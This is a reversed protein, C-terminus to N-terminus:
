LNPYASEKAAAKANRVFAVRTVASGSNALSPLCNFTRARGRWAAYTEHLFFLNRPGVIAEDPVKKKHKNIRGSELAEQDGVWAAFLAALIPCPSAIQNGSRYSCRNRRWCACWM